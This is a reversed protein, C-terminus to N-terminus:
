IGPIAVEGADSPPTPPTLVLIGEANPIVAELEAPPPCAPTLAAVAGVGV